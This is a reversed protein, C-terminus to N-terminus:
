NNNPTTSDQNPWRGPYYVGGPHLSQATERFEDGQVEVERDRIRRMLALFNSQKFKDSQEHSIGDLLEGATHALADASHARSQWDNPINDSGIRQEYVPVASEDSADTVPTGMIQEDEDQLFREGGLTLRIGQSEMNAQAQETEQSEMDAQAQEFAAAFAAEDYEEAPAYEEVPAAQRAAELAAQRQLAFANGAPYNPYPLQHGLNAIQRSQLYASAQQPHDKQRIFEQHWGSYANPQAQAIPPGQMQPQAPGAINLRQFDAAWDASPPAVEARTAYAGYHAPHQNPRQMPSELPNHDYGSAAEFAAFERDLIGDRPTQSRFGQFLISRLRFLQGLPQRSVLRDQQLTRDVSANKRLDQLANSPGCVGDSM